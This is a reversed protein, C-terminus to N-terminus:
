SPTVTEAGVITERLHDISELAEEKSSFKASRMLIAGAEDSLTYEYGGDVGRLEFRGLEPRHDYSIVYRKKSGPRYFKGRVGNGFDYEDNMERDMM